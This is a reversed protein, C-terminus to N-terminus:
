SKKPGFVVLTNIPHKEEHLNGWVDWSQCYAIGADLGYVSYVRAGTRQGKHNLGRYFGTADCANYIGSDREVVKICGPNAIDPRRAIARGVGPQKALTTPIDRLLRESDQETTDHKNQEAPCLPALRSITAMMDADAQIIPLCRQLLQRLAQNEELVSKMVESSFKISM